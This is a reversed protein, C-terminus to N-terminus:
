IFGKNASGVLDIKQRIVDKMMEIGPKLFKRPDNENSNDEFFEKIGNSFPIKLETAINIKNIGFEICKKISEDPVGSAGHLVLPIDVMSRIKKLREFDLKPEGKYVGHATGIAIALSDVKTKDVFDAAAEPDTYVASKEDVILDDETGGIVGLEAEVPVGVAHAAEVVKKVMNINEKLDLKSSDVMISTFGARLCQIIMDFDECHDLHMVIPINYEDSATKAMNALYNVGAFKITGPTAQLIVPSKKEEAVSVAAKLTELNHINFGCIAYKNKQADILYKKSTALAM